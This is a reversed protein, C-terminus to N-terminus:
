RGAGPISKRSRRRIPKRRCCDSRAEDIKARVDNLAKEKKFDQRRIGSHRGRLGYLRARYDDQLGEVSRLNTELPKVLLRESDEPSIGPYSAQVVILYPIPIDPDAEKPINMFALLGAVLVVAITAIVVRTNGVAWEVIRLTM